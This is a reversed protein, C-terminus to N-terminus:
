ENSQEESNNIKHTNIVKILNIAKIKKLNGNEDEVEIMGDKDKNIIRTVASNPTSEKFGGFVDVYTMNFEHDSIYINKGKVSEIDFKLIDSFVNLVITGYGDLKMQSEFRVCQSEPVKLFETIFKLETDNYYLIKANISNNPTKNGLKFVDLVNTPMALKLVTEYIEPTLMIQEYISNLKGVKDPVAFADLPNISKRMNLIKVIENNPKVMIKENFWTPKRLKPNTKIYKFVGFDTDVLIQFDYLVNIGAM